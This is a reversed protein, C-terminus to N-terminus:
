GKDAIDKKMFVGPVWWTKGTEDDESWMQDVNRYVEYGRRGYWEQNTVKPLDKKLAVFRDVRTPDDKNPTSLALRKACLPESIATGEVIDMAARGLGMGQLTESIWFACIFFVGPTPDNLEPNEYETDLSIHGVPIFSLSSVLQRPKAGLSSATDVLATSQKPFTTIHKSIYQQQNPDSEDIIVWQLNKRGKRQRKQWEPVHSANWGCALRQQVMREVHEPSDPDWPVLVVKTPPAKTGM